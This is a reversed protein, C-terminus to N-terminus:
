YIASSDSRRSEAYDRVEPTSAHCNQLPCRTCTWSDWGKRISIDLCGDYHNCFFNRHTELDQESRVPRSLPTPRPSLVAKSRM